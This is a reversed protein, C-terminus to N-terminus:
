TPVQLAATDEGLKEQNGPSLDCHSHPFILALSFCDPFAAIVLVGAALFVGGCAAIGARRATEGLRESVAGPRLLALLGALFSYASLALALLLAFSGIQAM